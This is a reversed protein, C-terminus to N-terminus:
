LRLSRTARQKVARCRQRLARVSVDRVRDAQRGAVLLPRQDDGPRRLAEGARRDEQRGADDDSADRGQEGPPGERGQRLVPLGHAPRRALPPPVLQQVRRQHGTGPGSGDANMRWIQMTGTRDSNFYISKGDPSFEPGDDLGKATTLRTEEGGAAPITYIDFEGNREGCFALTKGDPSWGHWYSPGPRRSSSRRAAPSRCRTSSRPRRGDDDAVPRQHRATTGDPSVGHDNNCRTAFGTDIAEPTGGPRPSGTSGAAATTSSAEARRAALQASRHPGAHRSTVRRDTSSITQTELTSYLTPRGTRRRPLTTNLEVNSFVAQRSLTRTTACVGIGVYFPEQFAIRAAAGSFSCNRAGGAALYM